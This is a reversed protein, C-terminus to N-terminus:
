QIWGNISNVTEKSKELINYLRIKTGDAGGVAGQFVTQQTERPDTDLAKQKSLDVAILRYNDKFYAYDLLCGTTYDDGQVWWRITKKNYYDRGKSSFVKIGAEEDANAGAAVFYALAFLRKVGQFSASLLDYINKGKETVKALITQYSSRYVSRKFGTSLQKKLNVDGKNSLTVIPVHLRADKTEFKASDGDNSLICDEIWNLEGHLKCNILLMELSRWFNSLYKLPVVTKTNKVSSNKNNVADETKGVLAAKYKFSQFNFVGNNVNLDANNAPPEDRKLQWVSGSTDSYNDPYEIM